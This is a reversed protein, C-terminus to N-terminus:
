NWSSVQIWNLKKDVTLLAGPQYTTGDLTATVNVTIKTGYCKYQMGGADSYSVQGSLDVSGDSYAATIEANTACLATGMPYTGLVESYTPLVPTNTPIPTVTAMPTATMTPTATPGFIQGPACSSIALSLLLVFIMVTRQKINM